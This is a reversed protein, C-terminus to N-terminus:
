CNRWDQPGDQDAAQHHPKRQQLLLAGFDNNCVATHDDFSPYASSHVDIRLLDRADINSLRIQTQDEVVSGYCDATRAAASFPHLGDSIRKAELISKRVSVHSESLDCAISRYKAPACPM